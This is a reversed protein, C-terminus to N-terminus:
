GLSRKKSLIFTHPEHIPCFPDRKMQRIQPGLNSPFSAFIFLELSAADSLTSQSNTPNGGLGGAAELRISSFPPAATEEDDDFLVDVEQFPRKWSDDDYSVCVNESHFRSNSMEHLSGDMM